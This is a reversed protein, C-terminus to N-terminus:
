EGITEPESERELAEAIDEAYTEYLTKNLSEFMERYYGSELRIGEM